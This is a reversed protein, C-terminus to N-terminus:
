FDWEGLEQLPFHKAKICDGFAFLPDLPEPLQRLINEPVSVSSELSMTRGLLVGISSSYDEETDSYDKCEPCLAIGSLKDVTAGWCDCRLCYCM